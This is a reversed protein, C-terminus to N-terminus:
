GAFALAGCTNFDHNYRESWSDVALVLLVTQYWSFSYFRYFDPPVKNIELQHESIVAVVKVFALLVRREDEEIHASYM